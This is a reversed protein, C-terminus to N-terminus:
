YAIKCYKYHSIDLALSMPTACILPNVNKSNTVFAWNRQLKNIKSTKVDIADIKLVPEVKFHQLTKVKLKIEYKQTARSM